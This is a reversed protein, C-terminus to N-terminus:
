PSLFDIVAVLFTQQKAVTLGTDASVFVTVPSTVPIFGLLSHTKEGDIKYIVENNRIELRVTGDFTGLEDQTATGTNQTDIANVIGTALLNQVAQDPLIAVSKQGQPTTVILQKTTVDISLPFDTVATVQNKTVSLKNDATPGLTIDDDELENEVAEELENLEDDEMEVEKGNEDEVKRVIQGNESKYKLKLEGQEIEIKTSGDDEIKTKIKQGDATEIETEQKNGKFETKTKRGDPTITENKTQSVEKSTTPTGSSKVSNSKVTNAPKETEKKQEEQKREETKKQEEQKSKSGKNEEKKEERKEEQKEEKKEEDGLVSQQASNYNQTIPVQTGFLLVLVALSSIIFRQRFLSIYPRVPRKRKSTSSRRVKKKKAM